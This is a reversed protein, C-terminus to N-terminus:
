QMVEVIEFPFEGFKRQYRILLKSQLKLSYQIMAESWDNEQNSKSFSMLYRVSDQIDLIQKRLRQKMEFSDFFIRKLRRYIISLDALGGNMKKYNLEFGGNNQYFEKEWGQLMLRDQGHERLDFSYGTAAGHRCGNSIAGSGVSHNRCRIKILKYLLPVRIGYWQDM